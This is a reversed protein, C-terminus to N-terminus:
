NRLYDEFLERVHSQSLTGAFSMFLYGQYLLALGKAWDGAEVSVAKQADRIADFLFAYLDSPDVVTERERDQENAYKRYIAEATLARM